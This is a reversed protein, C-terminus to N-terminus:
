GGTGADLTPDDELALVTQEAADLASGGQDLVQKGAALAQEVGKRKGADLDDEWDWAGGHAVIMPKM